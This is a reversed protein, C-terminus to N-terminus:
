CCGAAFYYISYLSLNSEVSNEAFSLDNSNEELRTDYICSILM